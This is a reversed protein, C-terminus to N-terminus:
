KLVSLHPSSTRRPARNLLKRGESLIWYVAGYAAATLANRPSVWGCSVFHAFAYTALPLYVLAGTIVGPSYRRGRVTAQIHWLANIAVGSAVALWLFRAWPAAFYVGAIAAALPVITNILVLFRTTMSREVHPSYRVYWDRFGGPWAFEECEHACIAAFLGWAMLGTTALTCGTALMVREMM